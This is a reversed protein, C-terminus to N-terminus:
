RLCRPKSQWSCGLFIVAMNFSNLAELYQRHRTKLMRSLLTLLTHWIAHGADYLHEHVNPHQSASVCVYVCVDKLLRLYASVITYMYLSVPVCVEYGSVSLVSAAVIHLWRPVGATKLIAIRGRARERQREGLRKVETQKGEGVSLLPLWRHCITFRSGLGINYCWTSRSWRCEVSEVTGRLPASCLINKLLASLFYIPRDWIWFSEQNRPVRQNVCHKTQLELCLSPLQNFSVPMWPQSSIAALSSALCNYM